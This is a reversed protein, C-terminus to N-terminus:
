LDERDDATQSTSDDKESTQEEQLAIKESGPLPVGLITFLSKKKGAVEDFIWGDSFRTMYINNLKALLKHDSDYHVRYKGKSKAEKNYHNVRTRVLTSIATALFQLFLKSQWNATSHVLTRNCSLRSKLTNFAYEVQNREAYAVACELAESVVDSILARVGAYRLHEDVKVMNIIKKGEVEKTYSEVVSRQDETLTDVNTNYREVLSCLQRQFDQTAENHVDRNFYLHIYLKLEASRKARKNKVPFEDYNWTIPVTVAAQNLYSISNNWDLLATYNADILNAISSDKGIRLCSIFHINNRILDDFNTRSGYGRDTVLVVNELDIQLLTLEAITNRITMVDPVNGDFNRCYLPLGNMQDVILLVNTQPAAILDKNHGYDVSSISQAYSTISTSDLAWYHRKQKDTSDAESNLVNLRKFFTDIENRQVSQLIRSIAGGTLPRQFPLWTCEAFEEYNSLCNDSCIVIYYALSLLKLAMNSRPFADRLARAIPTTGVLQNLAWTAGAHLRIHKKQWAICRDDEDIPKFELRGGKHRFTRLQELAPYQAKFEEYFFLEGCGKKGEIPVYRGVCTTDGKGRTARKGEKDWHNKYTFVYKYKSSGNVILRPLEPARILEM